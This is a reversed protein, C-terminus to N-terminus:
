ETDSEGSIALIQGLAIRAGDGRVRARDISEARSLDPRTPDSPTWISSGHLIHCTVVAFPVRPPILDAGQSPYGTFCVAIYTAPRKITRMKSRKRTAWHAFPKLLAGELGMALSNQVGGM